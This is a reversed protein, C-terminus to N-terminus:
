GEDRDDGDGSAEPRSMGAYEERPDYNPDLEEQPPREAEPVNKLNIRV